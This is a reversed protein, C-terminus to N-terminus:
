RKFKLEPMNRRSQQWVIQGAKFQIDFREVLPECFYRLSLNRVVRAGEILEFNNRGEMRSISNANSGVPLMTSTDYARM